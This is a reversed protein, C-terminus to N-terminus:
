QITPINQFINRVRYNRAGKGLHPCKNKCTYNPHKPQYKLGQVLRPDKDVSRGSIGLLAPQSPERGTGGEGMGGKEWCGRYSHSLQHAGEGIWDRRRKREGLLGPLASPIEEWGFM